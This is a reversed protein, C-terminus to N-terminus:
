NLTTGTTGSRESDTYAEGRRYIEVYGPRTVAPEPQGIRAVSSTQHTRPRVCDDQWMRVVLVILLSACAAEVSELRCMGVQRVVDLTFTDPSASRPGAHDPVSLELLLALLLRDVM